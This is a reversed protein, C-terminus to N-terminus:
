NRYDAGDRSRRTSEFWDLMNSRLQDVREPQDTAINNEESLDSALDYLEWNQGYDQSILKYSGDIVAMRQPLDFEDSADWRTFAFQMQRPGPKEGRVLPMMSRGDLLRNSPFVSEDAQWIDLLTPLYDHTIVPADSSSGAPIKGPWM